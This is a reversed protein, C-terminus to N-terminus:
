RREFVALFYRLGGPHDHEFVVGARLVRALGALDTSGGASATPDDGRAYHALFRADSLLRDEIGTWHELTGVDIGGDARSLAAFVAVIFRPRGDFVYDLDFDKALFGGPSKAIFRDTLGTIDLVRLQPCLFGVLGIDMLAVADGPAARRNLWEALAVHGRAYGRARTRSHDAYASRQPAQWFALLAVLAVGAVGARLASGPAGRAAGVLMAVGLAVLAAWAPAYPVLLRYGPMWDPGAAYIAAFGALFVGLAPLGARWLGAKDIRVFPILALLPGVIALHLVIYGAIYQTATGGAAFGGLKAYYTNPVLEGEYAVFRFIAAGLVAIGMAACDLAGRWLAARSRDGGLMRGALAGAFALSGEPRTLVALAFLVGAGRWAGRARGLAGLWLGGTLCASFLTTELGTTSNLAFASNTAVLAGALLGIMTQAAARAGAGRAWCAALLGGAACAALGSGVGILKAAFLAEDPGLVRIVGAILLMLSLNTYGEVHEGPNFYPGRGEALARSYRFTIFADDNVQSWYPAVSWLYAGGVLLAACGVIWPAARPPQTADPRAGLDSMAADNCFVAFSCADRASTLAPPLAGAASRRRASSEM